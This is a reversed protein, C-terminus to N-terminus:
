SCSCPCFATTVFLWALSQPNIPPPISPNPDDFAFVGISSDGAAIASLEYKLAPPTRPMEASSRPKGISGESKESQIKFGVWVGNWSSLSRRNSNESAFKLM